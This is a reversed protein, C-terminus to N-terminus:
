GWEHSSDSLHRSSRGAHRAAMCGNGWCNLLMGAMVMLKGSFSGPLGLGAYVITRGDPAAASQIGSSVIEEPLGRGPVVRM